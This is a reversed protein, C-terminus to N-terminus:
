FETIGLVVCECGFIFEGGDTEWLPCKENTEKYAMLLPHKKIEKKTPVRDEVFTAFSLFVPPSLSAFLGARTSSDKM